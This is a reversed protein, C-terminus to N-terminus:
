LYWLWSVVRTTCTTSTTMKRPGQPATQLKNCLLQQKLKLNKKMPINLVLRHVETSAQLTSHSTHLPKHATHMYSSTIQCAPTHNVWRHRLCVVLPPLSCPRMSSDSLVPRYLCVHTVTFTLCHDTLYPDFHIRLTIGQCWYMSYMNIYNLFFHPVM